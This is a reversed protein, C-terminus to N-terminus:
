KNKPDLYRLLRQWLSTELGDVALDVPQERTQREHEDCLEDLVMNKSTNEVPWNASM